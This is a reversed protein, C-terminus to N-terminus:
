KTVSRRLGPAADRATAQVVEVIGRRELEAIQARPFGAQQGRMYATGNFATWKRFRVTVESPVYEDISTQQIPAAVPRAMGAIASTLETIESV